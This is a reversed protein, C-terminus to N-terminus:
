LRATLLPTHQTGKSTQFNHQNTTNVIGNNTIKMVNQTM